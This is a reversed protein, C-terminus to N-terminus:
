CFMFIEIKSLKHPTGNVLSGGGVPDAHQRGQRVEPWRLDLDQFSSEDLFVLERGDDGLRQGESLEPLKDRGVVRDLEKDNPM